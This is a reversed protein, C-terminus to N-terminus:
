QATGTSLLQTGYIHHRWLREIGCVDEFACVFAADGLRSDFGFGYSIHVEFEVPRTLRLPGPEAAEDVIESITFPVFVVPIWPHKPIRFSAQTPSQPFHLPRNTFYWKPILSQKISNPDPTTNPVYSILILISIWTTINRIIFLPYRKVFM